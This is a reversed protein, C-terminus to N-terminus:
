SDEMNKGNEKLKNVIISVTFYEYSTKDEKIHVEFEVRLSQLCIKKM